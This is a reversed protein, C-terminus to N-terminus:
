EPTGERAGKLSAGSMRAGQTDAGRLDALELDADRLDADRLSAGSLNSSRLKASRLSASGLDAGVFSSGVLTAKLANCRVLKAGDFAASTLKGQRLDVSELNTRDFRVADGSVGMLSAKVLNADTFDAGDLTARAFGSADLAAGVFSARSLVARDWSTRSAEVGILQAGELHAGALNADSLRAGELGVKAGRADVFRAGVLNARAFSTGDLEAASLDCGPLDADVFSADTWKGQSFIVRGGKVRDFKANRGAAATFNADDLSAGELKARDLQARSLDAQTLDAGRLDASVLDAGTLKASQLRAGALNAGALKANTLNCDSFNAGALECGTFDAGVLPLDKLPEGAQVRALAVARIGAAVNAATSSLNGDLGGSTKETAATRDGGRTEDVDVRPHTVDEDRARGGHTPDDDLIAVEAAVPSALQVAPPPSPFALMPAPPAVISPAVPRPPSLRPPQPVADPSEPAPPPATQSVADARVAEAAVARADGGSSLFPMAGVNGAGPPPPPSTDRPGAFSSPPPPSAEPRSAAAPPPVLGPPRPGPSSPGVRPVAPAPRLGGHAPQPAASAASEDRRGSTDSPADSVAAPPATASERSRPTPNMTAGLSLGRGLKRPADGGASTMSLDEPEGLTLSADIELDSWHERLLPLAGRWVVSVTKTHADVFLTDIALPFPERRGSEDRLEARAVPMPLRTAFRAIEPHVGEVLIWEDGDIVPLWQDRSVCSFAEPLVDDPWTWPEPGPVPPAVKGVMGREPRDWPILGFGAPEGERKPHVVSPPLGAKVGFPNTGNEGRPSLEWAIRAQSFPNPADELSRRAGLVHLTKDLKLVRKWIAFRVALARVPERGVPVADGILAAQPFSLQPWLDSPRDGRDEIAVPAPETPMAFGAHIMAFSAKVIATVRTRGRRRWLLCGVSIPGEPNVKLPWAM